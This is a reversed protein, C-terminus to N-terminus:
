AGARETFAPARVPEQLAHRFGVRWSSWRPQWRLERRAKANSAGRGETVWRVVAEGALLRGLWVPLRLPPKAGVAAALYPLWEAVSAPDDDVINYIGRHGRELAAVTAAAADEIHVWSWVGGGDGILPFRRQRIVEVLADSAGPGYFSGYRLVIGELPAEVVAQELFRIAALSQVQSSAPHPDLPDGETKVPGGARLNTWGTFSQALFRTAGAAQAAALLQETGKTRLANTPAMWEDFRRYDPTGGLATMQHVVAQPEARAVAEGVASADLGDAVVVEAGLRRLSEAKGPSRTMATVQHGRELLQRVLPRGIAGTAGAVFVRMERERNGTPRNSQGFGPRSLIRPRSVRRLGPCRTLRTAGADHRMM